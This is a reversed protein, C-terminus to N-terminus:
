RPPQAPRRAGPNSITGSILIGSSVTFFGPRSAPPRKLPSASPLAFYNTFLITRAQIAISCRSGATNLPVATSVDLTCTPLVFVTGEVPITAEKPAGTGSRADRIRLGGPVIERRGTAKRARRERKREEWREGM